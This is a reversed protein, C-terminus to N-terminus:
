EIQRRRGLAIAGAGLLALGVLIAGPLLWSPDDDHIPAAPQV